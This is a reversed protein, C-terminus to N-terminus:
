KNVSSMLESDREREGGGRGQGIVVGDPSVPNNGQPIRRRSIPSRPFLYPRGWGREPASPRCDPSISILHASFSFFSSVLRYPTIKPGLSFAKGQVTSVFSRECMNWGGVINYWRDQVARYMDRYMSDTDVRSDREMADCQM